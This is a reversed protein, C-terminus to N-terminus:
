LQLLGKDGRKILRKVKNIKELMDIIYSLKSRDMSTHRESPQAFATTPVTNHDAM